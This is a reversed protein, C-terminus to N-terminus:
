LGPLMTRLSNGEEVVGQYVAAGSQKLSLELEVEDVELMDFEFVEIAEGAGRNRFMSFDQNHEVKIGEVCRHIVTEQKLQLLEVNTPVEPFVIQLALHAGFILHELFVFLIIKETMTWSSYEESGFILLVVNTFAALMGYIDFATTWPENSRARAPMPRQRNELLSKMDVWIEVFVALLTAACVWPSGVAFLTAFGHTILMEDFNEFNSYKEKKAQQEGTSMDAMELLNQGHLISSLSMNDIYCSRWWSSVKPAYYEFVNSIILRFFVFIALQSQLDNFCDDNSCHLTVGFIKDHNKFFAIFYLSFFSNVFKFGMVKVLLATEHESITRHNERKTLWTALMHLLGNSIEVYAALLLQFTLVGGSVTPAFEHRLYMLGIVNFIMVVGVASMVAFSLAYDLSRRQWPYHPEVQSTVPNILMEGTHEPRCPELQDVMELTGWSSAYKAEQRRWFYPMCTAWVSMLICFPIATRNDPTRAILDVFQLFLGIVALPVLWKLYFSMFLFYFAIKDGFYDRMRNAHDEGMLFWQIKADLLEQGMPAEHLPFYAKLEDQHLLKGINIGACDKDKSTIIHNILLIKDLTRFISSPDPYDEEAAHTQYIHSIIRRDKFQFEPRGPFDNRYEAYASLYEKKLQLKYKMRAATDRLKQSSAGIKVLIEDRDRSYFCYVNLGVNQLGKLITERRQKWMQMTNQEKPSAQQLGRVTYFESANEEYQVRKSTKYKFVMCLEYDRKQPIDQIDNLNGKQTM